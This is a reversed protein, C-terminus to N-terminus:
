PHIVALELVASAAIVMEAVNRSAEIWHSASGAAPLGQTPNQTKPYGSSKKPCSLSNKPLSTTKAVKPCLAEPAIESTTPTCM